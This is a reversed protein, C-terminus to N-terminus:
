GGVLRGGREATGVARGAMLGATGVALRELPGWREDSWQAGATGVARREKIGKYSDSRRDGGGRASGDDM